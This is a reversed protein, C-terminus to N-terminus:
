QSVSRGTTKPLPLQMGKPWGRTRYVFALVEAVAAYLTAPIPKGVVGVGMLARALPKNEVTPVGAEKALAKIREAVKREGKAIVIPASGQQLDYKLAIALHTPNTVVVDATKVDKLMRRRALSRALSQMRSKVLPDGETEKFEQVVEQRTMRLSQEHRYLQYLYDAGSLGLFAIGTTLAIRVGVSRLMAAIQEVGTGNLGVIAPWAARLVLYAVLGIVAFKLLAQVVTVVSQLSFLRELGTRPSIRSLQPALTDTALVGRAQVANVLAAPIAVALLLPLVALAGHRGAARLAATADGETLPGAALWQGLDRLLASCERAVTSPGWASLAVTGALLIVAASLEPSRAVRGEEHAKARRRPTAQETREMSM